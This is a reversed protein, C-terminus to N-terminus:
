DLQVPAQGSPTSVVAPSKAPAAQAKFVTSVSTAQPNFVNLATAIVIGWGLAKGVRSDQAAILSFGGFVVFTALMESPLPPRHQQSIDRWTIIGVEVLWPLILPDM